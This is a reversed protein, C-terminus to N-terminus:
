KVPEDSEETEDEDTDDDEEVEDFEIDEDESVGDNVEPETIIPQNVETNLKKATM